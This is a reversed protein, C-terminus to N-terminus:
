RFGLCQYSVVPSGTVSAAFKFMVSTTSVSSMTGLDPTTSEVQAFCVPPSPWTAAFNLTM